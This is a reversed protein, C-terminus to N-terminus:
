ASKEQNLLIQINGPIMAGVDNAPIIFKNYETNETENHLIGRATSAALMGFHSALGHPVVFMNNEAKELKKWSEPDLVFVCSVTIDIFPDGDPEQEEDKEKHVFKNNFLVKVFHKDKDVGFNMGAKIAVSKGDVFSEPHIDLKETKVNILAFNVHHEQQEAM